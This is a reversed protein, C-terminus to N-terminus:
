PGSAEYVMTEFASVRSSPPLQSEALIPATAEGFRRAHDSSQWVEIVCAGTGVAGVVRSLCGEPLKDHIGAREMMANYRDVPFDSAWEVITCFAM